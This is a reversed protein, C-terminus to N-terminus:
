ADSTAVLAARESGSFLAELRIGLLDLRTGDGSGKPKDGIRPHLGM